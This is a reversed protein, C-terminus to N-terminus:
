FKILADEEHLSPEDFKFRSERVLIDADKRHQWKM